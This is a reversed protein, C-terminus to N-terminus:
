FPYSLHFEYKVFIISAISLTELTLNIKERFLLNLQCKIKVKRYNNIINEYRFKTDFRPPNTIHPIM